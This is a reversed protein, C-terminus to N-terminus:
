PLTQLPSSVLNASGIRCTGSFVTLPITLAGGLNSWAGTVNMAPCTALPPPPAFAMNLITLSPAVPNQLITWPLGSPAMLTCSPSGTFSASTVQNTTANITLNVTCPIATPSSGLSITSSGTMAFVGGPTFADAPAALGLAALAALALLKTKM